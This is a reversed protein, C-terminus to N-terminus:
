MKLRFESLLIGPLKRGGVERRGYTSLEPELYSEQTLAELESGFFRYFSEDFRMDQIPAVIEGKEVWFCAYRTMGTVRANPLDSWNLYHLNGLYVGTGLASLVSKEPLAGPQIELSRFGESPDGANSQLQYEKASRSSVIWNKLQGNVVVPVQPAAVEGLSNFKPAIGLDFNEGFNLLPSLSEKEEALKAFSSRGQKYAALSVSRWSLMGAIESMAGPALYARYTGPTLVKNNRQLPKLLDNNKAIQAQLQDFDWNRDSYCGKVAKNTREANITFLSYDYFFHPSSYWHDQGLSNRHARYIPGGSYFGSHDIGDHADVIQHITEEASTLAGTLEESSTGHNNLPVLYADEPLEHAEARCRALLARGLDVDVKLNGTLPMSIQSQRHNKQLTIELTFQEVQTSQRVTSNNFRLFLSEEGTLSLSLGEGPHLNALLTDTLERWHHKWSSTM